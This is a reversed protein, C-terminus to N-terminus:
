MRFRKWSAQARKWVQEDAFKSKDHFLALPLWQIDVKTRTAVNPEGTFVVTLIRSEKKGAVRVTGVANVMIIEEEHINYSAQDTPLEDPIGNEEIFERVSEADLSGESQWTNEAPRYGEWSVRYERNQGRVGRAGLIDGVVYHHRKLVPEAGSDLAEEDPVELPPSSPGEGQSGEEVAEPLTPLGGKVVEPVFRQDVTADLARSKYRKVDQAHYQRQVGDLDKFHVRKGEFQTELIKTPGAWNMRGKHGQFTDRTAYLIEEGARLNLQGKRGPKRAHRAAMAKQAKESAERAAERADARSQMWEPLNVQAFQRGEEFDVPHIFKRGQLIEAPSYGGLRPLPRSNLAYRLFPIYLHWHDLAKLKRLYARVEDVAREAKGNSHHAEATTTVNVIKMRIQYEEWLLNEFEGGGDMVLKGPLGYHSFMVFLVELTERAQKSFLAYFDSYGSSGCRAILMYKHGEVSEEMEALDCHVVSWPAEIPFPNMSFWSGSGKHAARQCTDCSSVWEAVFKRLDRWWYREELHRITQDRGMHGGFPSDHFASCLSRRMADPVVIVDQDTGKIHLKLRGRDEFLQDEIEALISQFPFAADSEDWDTPDEGRAVRLAAQYFVDEDSAEEALLFHVRPGKESQTFLPVQDRVLSLENRRADETVNVWPPRSLADAVVNLPGALHKVEMDFTRLTTLWRECMQSAAGIQSTNILWLLPKHDTELVFHVGYLVHRWNGVVKVVAFAEQVITAWKQQAANFAYSFVMILRETGDKARQFLAGGVGWDSADTRVVLLLSTAWDIVQNEVYSACLEKAENFAKQCKESWNWVAKKSVLGNMQSLCRELKPVFRAIWRALGLFGLLEKAGKPTPFDRIKMITDPLPRIVVNGKADRTWWLGLYKVGQRLLQIKQWRVPLGHKRLLEVVLLVHQVHEEVTRSFILIDDVFVIVFKLPAFIHRLYANWYAPANTFGFAMRKYRYFGGDPGYFATYKLSDKHVPILNFAWRIDIVTFAAAMPGILGICEELSYPALALTITWLNLLAAVVCVRTKLEDRPFCHNTLHKPPCEEHPVRELLGSKLGDQIHQDLVESHHQSHSRKPERLTEPANAKLEIKFSFEEPAACDRLEKHTLDVLDQQIRRLAEQQQRPLTKVLEGDPEGVHDLDISTDVNDYQMVFATVQPDRTQTQLKQEKEGLQLATPAPRQMKSTSAYSQFSDNFKELLELGKEATDDTALDQMFWSQPRFVGEADQYCPEGALLLIKEGRSDRAFTAMADHMNEASLIALPSQLDAVLFKIQGRQRGFQVALLVEGLIRVSVDERIGHVSKHRSPSLAVGPVLSPALVNANACSDLLAEVQRGEILLSVKTLGTDNERRTAAKGRQADEDSNKPDSWARSQLTYVRPLREGREPHILLPVNSYKKKKEPKNRGSAEGATKGTAEKQPTEKPASAEDPKVKKPDERPQDKPDEGKNKHRCKWHPHNDRQCHKCPPWKDESPASKPDSNHPKSEDKPKGKGEDRNRKKGEKKRRRREPDEEKKPDLEEKPDKGFRHKGSHTLRDFVLRNSLYQEELLAFTCMPAEAKTLASKVDAVGPVGALQNWPIGERFLNQLLEATGVYNGVTTWLRLTRRMLMDLTEGRVHRPRRVYALFPAILENGHIYTAITSSLDELSRLSHVGVALTSVGAFIQQAALIALPVSLRYTEILEQLADINLILGYLTENPGRPQLLSSPVDTLKRKTSPNDSPKFELLVRTPPDSKSANISLRLPDYDGEFRFPSARTRTCADELWTRSVGAAAANPKLSEQASKLRAQDAKLLEEPGWVKVDNQQM